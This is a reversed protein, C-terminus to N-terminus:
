CWQSLFDWYKFLDCIYLTDPIVTLPQALSYRVQQTQAWIKRVQLLEKLPERVQGSKAKLKNQLRATQEGGLNETERLTYFTCCAQRWGARRSSSRHFRSSKAEPVTSYFFDCLINAQNWRWPVWLTQLLCQASWVPLLCPLNLCLPNPGMAPIECSLPVMPPFMCSSGSPLCFRHHHDCCAWHPRSWVGWKCTEPPM